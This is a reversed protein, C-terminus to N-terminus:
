WLYTRREEPLYLKDGWKVDYLEYWRDCNMVIGNTREKPMSHTDRIQFLCYDVYAANYKARWMRAWSQFFKREQKLREEGTYGERELKATYAQHAILMGGLDATNEELTQEGPAYVGPMENPLLELLNYCDILQQQRDKYEMKDAVTWWNSVNGMKDYNAGYNDFGHVMEHAIISFIAYNYADSYDPKYFPEFLFAPYITISNTDSHYIANVQALAYSGHTLLSHFKMNQINMGLLNRRLRYKATRLQMLDEVLCTGDMPPLGEEMWTDPCGVNFHMAALKEQAREKTTSSMWSLADIRSSLTARMEECIATYQQKQEPTIFQNAIAYSYPYSFYHVYAIYNLIDFSFYNDSVNNYGDLAEKSAYMYDAALIARVLAKLSNADTQELLAMYSQMPTYIILYELIGLEDAMVNILKSGPQETRTASSLQFLDNLEPHRLYMEPTISQPMSYNGEIQRCLNAALTATAKADAEEMGTRLLLSTTGEADVPFSYQFLEETFTFYAYSRGGKFYHDIELLSNGGEALIRAMARWVEETTHAEDLLAMRRRIAADAAEYNSGYEAIDTQFKNNRPDNIQNVLQQIYDGAETFIDISMPDSPLETNNWYSGNCYMYFNDGPRYSTDMNKDLDWLKDDVASAIIETEDDSCSTLSFTVALILLVPLRLFTAILNRNM